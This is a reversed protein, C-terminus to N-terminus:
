QIASDELPCKYELHCSLIPGDRGNQLFFIIKKAMYYDKMSWAQETLIAQYQGQEKKRKWQSLWYGAMNVELKTLLAPMYINCM